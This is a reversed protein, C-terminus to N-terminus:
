ASAEASTSNKAAEKIAKGARELGAGRALLRHAGTHRLVRASVPEQIGARLALSKLAKDAAARTM